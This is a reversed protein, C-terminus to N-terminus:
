GATSFRLSDSGQNSTVVAKVSASSSLLDRSSFLRVAFARTSGARLDGLRVTVTGRPQRRADRDASMPRWRLVRPLRIKVTADSISGGRATVALVL